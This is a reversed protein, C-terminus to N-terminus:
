AIEESASGYSPIAVNLLNLTYWEVFGALGPPGPESPSEDGGVQEHRSDSTLGAGGSAV